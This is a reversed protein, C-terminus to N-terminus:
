PKAPYPTVVVHSSILKRVEDDPVSEGEAARKALSEVDKYLSFGDSEKELSIRPGANISEDWAARVQKWFGATKNWYNNAKAFEGDSTRLYANFGIERCLPFEKGDRKVCKTNDQEHYWGNATVTHRNIVRLLDYDSRKSYERRPLPRITPDSTWESFGEGHVWTGRAEYRPADTVETVRQTWTGKTEAESLSRKEWTSDGQFELIEPDQYTWVQSWHKVVVRDVQLVHQLVIRTGDDEAVKVTESADEDYAKDKIKYDDKLSLTEKFYFTVDFEGTMKLIAQRDKEFADGSPSQAHVTLSSLIAGAIVVTNFLKM